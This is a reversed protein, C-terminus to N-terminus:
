TSLAPTDVAGTGCEGTPRFMDDAPIGVITRFIKEALPIQEVAM